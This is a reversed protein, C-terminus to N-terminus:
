QFVKFFRVIRQRSDALAQLDGSGRRVGLTVTDLVVADIFRRSSAWVHRSFLQAMFLARHLHSRLADHSVHTVSRARVFRGAIECEDSSACLRRLRVGSSAATRFGPLVPRLKRLRAPLTPGETSVDGTEISIEDVIEGGREFASIKGAPFAPELVLAKIM